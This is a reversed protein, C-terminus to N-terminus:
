IVSPISTWLSLANIEGFSDLSGECRHGYTIKAMLPPNLIASPPISYGNGRERHYLM